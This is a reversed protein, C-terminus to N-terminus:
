DPDLRAAERFSRGAEQHNFGYTLNLGQNIFLQAQKSTTTVPFVHDGLDQLRPAVAGSSASKGKDASSPEQALAALCLAPELLLVLMTKIRKM